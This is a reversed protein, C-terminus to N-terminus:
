ILNVNLSIELNKGKRSKRTSQNTEFNIDHKQDIMNISQNSITLSDDTKLPSLGLLQPTQSSKQLWRM